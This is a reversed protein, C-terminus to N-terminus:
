FAYKLTTAFFDRDSLLNQTGGGYFNV